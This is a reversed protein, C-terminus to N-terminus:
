IRFDLHVGGSPWNADKSKKMLLHRWSILLSFNLRLMENKLREDSSHDASFLKFFRLSITILAASFPPATTTQHASRLWFSAELKRVGGKICSDVFIEREDVLVDDFIRHVIKDSFM